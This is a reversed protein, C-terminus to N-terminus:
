EILASPKPNKEDTADVLADKDFKVKGNFVAAKSDKDFLYVFSIANDALMPRELHVDSEGVMKPYSSNLVTKIKASEDDANEGFPCIFMEKFRFAVQFQLFLCHEVKLSREDGKIASDVIM